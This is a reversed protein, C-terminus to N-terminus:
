RKLMKFLEGPIGDGGSSKNTIISGLTWKFKCEPIYPDLHTTVGDYNDPYNLVIKYLPFNKFLHHMSVM